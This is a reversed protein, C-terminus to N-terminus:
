KRQLVEALAQAFPRPANPKEAAETAGAEADPLHSLLSIGAPSTAVLFRQKEYAVVCIGQRAGLSRSELINLRPQQGRQLTLRQWNKFLWVGGLFLGLVLALAGLVRLLSGGADPLPLPAAVANTSQAFVNGAASFLLAATFLMRAGVTHGRFCHFFVLAQLSSYITNIGNIFTHSGPLAFRPAIGGDARLAGTGPRLVSRTVLPLPNNWVRPPLFNSRGPRAREASITEEGQNM